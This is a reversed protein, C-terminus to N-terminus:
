FLRAVTYKFKTLLYRLYFRKCCHDTLLERADDLHHEKIKWFVIDLLQAAVFNLMANRQGASAEKEAHSKIQNIFSVYTDVDTAKNVETSTMHDCFCLVSPCYVIQWHLAVDCFLDQHNKEALNNPFNDLQRLIERKLALSSLCFPPDGFAAVDFYDDLIRPESAPIDFIVKPDTYNDSNDVLQYAVSYAGADPFRTYLKTLEDLLHTEWFDCEQLFLVLHGRASLTAYKLADTRNNFLGSLVRLQHTAQAQDCQEEITKKVYKNYGVPAIILEFDRNAQMLVSRIPRITLAQRKQPAIIVSFMPANSRTM